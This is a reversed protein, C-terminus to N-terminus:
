YYLKELVKDPLNIGYVRWRGQKQIGTLPYEFYENETEMFEFYTRFYRKQRGCDMKM